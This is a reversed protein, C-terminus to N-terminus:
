CSDLQRGRSREPAFIVLLLGVVRWRVSVIEVADGVVDVCIFKGLGVVM